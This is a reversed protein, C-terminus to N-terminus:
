LLTKNANFHDVARLNNITAPLLANLESQLKEATAVQKKYANFAKLIRKAHSKVNDIYVFPPNFKDVAFQLKNDADIVPNKYSGYAKIYDGSYCCGRADLKALEISHDDPFYFSYGNARAATRIKERTKDGYSKGNYPAVAAAIVPMADAFIRAKLNDRLIATEIKLLYIKECLEAIKGANDDAVKHLEKLRDINHDNFATAREQKMSLNVIDNEAKAIADLNRNIAADIQKATKMEPAAAKEYGDCPAIRVLDGCGNFYKCTKCKM